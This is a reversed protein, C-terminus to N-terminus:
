ASINFISNDYSMMDFYRIQLGYRVLVIKYGKKLPPVMKNDIQSLLTYEILM